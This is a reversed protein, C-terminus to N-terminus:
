MREGTDKMIFDSEFKCNLIAAIEQLESVTFDNGRLKITLYQRSIGLKGALATITMKRRGLLLRIKESVTM